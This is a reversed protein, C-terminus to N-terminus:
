GPHSNPEGSHTLSLFYRPLLLLGEMSNLCTTEEAIFTIADTKQSAFPMKKM